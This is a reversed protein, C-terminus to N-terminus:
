QIEISQGEKLTVIAKKYGPKWGRQRGKKREKGPINIINVATVEVGYRSEVAKKVELKNSSSSVIFAYKNEKAIGSTKETLQPHRLVGWLTPRATERPKFEDGAVERKEESVEAEKKKKFRDWFAM